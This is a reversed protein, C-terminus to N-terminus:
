KKKIKEKIRKLLAAKAKRQTEEKQEKNRRRRVIVPDPQSYFTKYGSGCCLTLEQKGDVIDVGLWKVKGMRIVSSDYRAIEAKIDCDLYLRHTTLLAVVLERYTMKGNWGFNSNLKM